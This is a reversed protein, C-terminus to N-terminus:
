VLNCVETCKLSKPQIFLIMKVAVYFIAPSFVHPPQFSHSLKPELMREMAQLQQGRAVSCLRGVNSKWGASHSCYGKVWLTMTLIGHSFAPFAKQWSVLKGRFAQISLMLM